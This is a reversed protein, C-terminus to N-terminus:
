KVIAALERLEAVLAEDRPIRRGIAGAGGTTVNNTSWCDGDRGNNRVYWIESDNLVFWDGGGYITQTDFIREGRANNDNAEPREGRQQIDRKIEELRAKAAKVKLAAERKAIYPAAEDPTAERCTATYAYGSEDGVGFSMGDYRYYKSSADLVCLWEPYGRDRYSDGARMIQGRQWGRHGDGSGAYLTYTKTAQPVEVHKPCTVHETRRTTKDWNIADGPQIAQGCKACKGPYRAQITM